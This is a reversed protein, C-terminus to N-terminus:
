QTGPDKGMAESLVRVATASKAVHDDLLDFHPDGFLRTRLVEPDGVKWLEKYHEIGMSQEEDSMRQSFELQLKRLTDLANGHTSGTFGHNRYNERARDLDKELTDMQAWLREHATVGPRAEPMEDAVMVQPDGESDEEAWLEHSDNAQM